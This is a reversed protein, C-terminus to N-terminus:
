FGGHKKIWAQYYLLICMPQGIICFVIWFFINGVSSKSNQPSIKNTLLILPVQFLMAAFAWYKLLKTPVAVIFEHGAASAVFVLLSAVSNSVKMGRLPYYVHRKLWNHVPLNWLRWYEDMTQANWWPGYFSRDSFRFVEALANFFCHFCAYFMLLWIYLSSSSLKLIREALAFWDLDEMPKVSNQVTPIAYQELVFYAMSSLSIFELMRKLFFGWRFRESMPYVPQYCLTPVCCFYLLNRITINQPYKIKPYFEQNSANRLEMNVLHYSSLKMFILVTTGLIFSGLLPHRMYNWMILPPLVFISLLNCSISINFNRKPNRVVQRELLYSALVNVLILAVIIISSILDEITVFKGPLSILFGYKMYNEVILRINNVILLLITLNLFGRYNQQNSEKSFPSVSSAVHVPTSHSKKKPDVHIDMSMVKGQDTQKLLMKQIVQIM